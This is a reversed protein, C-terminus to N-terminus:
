DIMLLDVVFNFIYDFGESLLEFLLTMLDIVSDRLYEILM